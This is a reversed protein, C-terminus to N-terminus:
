THNDDKDDKRSRKSSDYRTWVEVILMVIIMILLWNWIMSTTTM